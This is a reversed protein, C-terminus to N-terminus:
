TSSRATAGCATRCAKCGEPDPRRLQRHTRAHTCRGTRLLDRRRGARVAPENRHSLLRHRLAFEAIEAFRATTVADTPVYLADPRAAAVRGLAQAVRDPQIVDIEDITIGLASAARRNEARYLAAGPAAPDFLTAIRAASPAAEKLLQIIKNSTELSVFSLGTINGGPRALSAVFGLEVPAAVVNM